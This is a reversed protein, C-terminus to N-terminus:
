KYSAILFSFAPVHFIKEPIYKKGRRRLTILASSNLVNQTCWLNRLKDALKCNLTFVNLDIKKVFSWNKVFSFGLIRKKHGILVIEPVSPAVSLIEKERTQIHKKRVRSVECPNSSKTWMKPLLCKNTYYVSMWITIQESTPHTSSFFFSAPFGQPLQKPQNFNTISIHILGYIFYHFTFCWFKLLTTWINSIDFGFKGSHKSQQYKHNQNIDYPLHSLLM